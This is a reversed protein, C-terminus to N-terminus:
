ETTRWRGTCDPSRKNSEAHWPCMHTVKEFWMQLNRFICCRFVGAKWRNEQHAHPNHLDGNKFGGITSCNQNALVSFSIYPYYENSWNFSSSFNHTYVGKLLVSPVDDLNKLRLPLIKNIKNLYWNNIPAHWQIHKIQFLTVDAGHSYQLSCEFTYAHIKSSWCM